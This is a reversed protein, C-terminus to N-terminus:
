VQVSLRDRQATKAPIGLFQDLAPGYVAADRRGMAITEDLREPRTYDWRSIPVDGTPGIYLRDGKRGLVGSPYPRTLMILNRRTHPDAEAVFAPVNDIVGGDLLRHGRYWGVPTFPPTASSALVLDTLEEVTTCERADFIRPSFGLRRGFTPHLQRPRLRKELNYASLGLMVAALAPVYRSFGTTLVLLPFPLRQIRQLGGDEMAEIMTERYIRGHPAISEGRWLRRLDLNRDIGDVNRKWIGAARDVRDAFFLAAMSAGASCTAVVSLHPMIRSGLVELLGAQYFARNGGGALTLALSREEM